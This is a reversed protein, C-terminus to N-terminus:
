QVKKFLTREKSDWLRRLEIRGCSCEHHEHWSWGGVKTVPLM